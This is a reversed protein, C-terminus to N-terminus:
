RSAPGQEESWADGDRAYAVIQDLPMQRGNKWEMEFREAGLHERTTAVCGEHHTQHYPELLHQNIERLGAAAGLLRAAGVSKGTASAIWALHELCDAIEVGLGLRRYELLANTYLERATPYEGQDFALRGRTTQSLLVMLPQKLEKRRREASRYLKKAVEYNGKQHASWGRNHYLNAILNADNAQEALPIAELYRDEAVDHKDLCAFVVGLNYLANALGSANGLTRWRKVSEELFPIAEDYNERKKELNGMNQLVIAVGAESGITEQLNRSQRFLEMAQDFERKEQLVSALDDLTQALGRQGEVGLSEWTHRSEELLLRAEQLDDQRYALVGSARRLTARSPEDGPVVPLSLITTLRERGETYYGLRYWYPWLAVAIRFAGNTDNRTIAGDLAQGLNDHQECLKRVWLHEDAKGFHPRAEEALQLFFRMHRERISAEEGAAELQRGAYERLTDLLWYRERGSKPAQVVLSKRILINLVTLLELDEASLSRASWPGGPSSSPIDIADARDQRKQDNVSEADQPEGAPRAPRAPGCIETVASRSGGGRFVSLRNFLTQEKPELRNYSWDIAAKLTAHRDKADRVGHTLLTFREDKKLLEVISWVSLSTLQAAVLEIALPIGDLLKCIRVVAPRNEPTMVFTSPVARSRQCFLRVADSDADEGSSRSDVEPAELSLPPVNWVIEAGIGLAERSTAVIKLRPCHDLLAAILDASAALQTECTDLLLLLAKERLFAKLREILTPKGAEAVGLTAAVTPLVQTPQNLRALDIM